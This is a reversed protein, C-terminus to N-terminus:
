KVRLRGIERLGIEQRYAVVVPQRSRAGRDRCQVAGLLQRQGKLLPRSELGGLLRVGTDMDGPVCRFGQGSDEYTETSHRPIFMGAATSTMRFATFSRLRATPWARAVRPLLEYPIAWLNERANPIVYSRQAM